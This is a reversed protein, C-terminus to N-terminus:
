VPNVKKKESEWGTVGFCIDWEGNPLKRYHSWYKNGKKSVKAEMKVPQGQADNHVKCHGILTSVPQVVPQATQTTEPVVPVPTLQAKIKKILPILKIIKNEFELSNNARIVFQSDKNDDSFYSWQYCPFGNKEKNEDKAMKNRVKKM